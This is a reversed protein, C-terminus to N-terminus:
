RNLDVPITLTIDDSNEFSLTVDVQDGDSLGTTLGMMMVHDGGRKLEAKGGAPVVIGGEVPMMMAVGDQDMKHTHLETMRAVQTVAGILRVDQDTGNKIVFFAAGAKASPSSVRAYANEIEIVGSGDEPGFAFYGAVGIVILLVVSLIKMMNRKM